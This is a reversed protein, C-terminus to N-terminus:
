RDLRRTANAPGDGGCSADGGTDNPELGWDVLRGQRKSRQRRLLLTVVYRVIDHSQIFFLIVLSSVGQVQVGRMEKM